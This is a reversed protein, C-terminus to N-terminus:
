KEERTLRPFTKLLKRSLGGNQSALGKLTAIIIPSFKLVLSNNEKGVCAMEM